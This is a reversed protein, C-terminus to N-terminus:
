WASDGIVSRCFWLFTSLREIIVRQLAPTKHLRLCVRKSDALPSSLHFWSAKLQYSWASHITCYAACVEGELVIDLAFSDFHGVANTAPWPLLFTGKELFSAAEQQVVLHLVTILALGKRAHSEFTNVFSVSSEEFHAHNLVKFEDLLTTDLFKEFSLRLFPFAGPTTVCDAAM